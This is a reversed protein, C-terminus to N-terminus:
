DRRRLAAMAEPSPAAAEPGLLSLEALDSLREAGDAGILRARGDGREGLAWAMAGDPLRALSGPAIPGLAEALAEVTAPEFSREQERLHSLAEAPALGFRHARSAVMTVYRDACRLLGGEAALEGAVLKDPYGRGTPDEHHQKCCALWVPRSVGYDLLLREVHAPHSMIALRDSSSPTKSKGNLEDQLELITWNMTLAACAVEQRTEEEMGLRAGALECLFAAHISNLLSNSPRSSMLLWALSRQADAAALRRLAAASEWILDAFNDPLAGDERLGRLRDHLAELRRPASEAEIPLHDMPISDPEGDGEWIWLGQALAARQEDFYRARKGRPWIVRGWADYAAREAALGIPADSPLAPRFFSM